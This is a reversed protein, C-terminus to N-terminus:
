FKIRIIIYIGIFYWIMERFADFPTIKMHLWLLLSRKVQSSIMNACSLERPIENTNIYYYPNIITKSEM